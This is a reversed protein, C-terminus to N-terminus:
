FRDVNLLPEKIGDPDTSNDWASSGAALLAAKVTKPSAAPSGAKYLAAAGSVHPAAMSTGSMVETRGTHSTSLICAGPAILDVDRGYNSFRVLVDDPHSGGCQVSGAGLGGPKGDWDALASVTIVEDYAAPVQTAADTSSNGASAVYTVGAAVSRCIADHYPDPTSCGKGTPDTGAGGLSMNAVEIVSANATVWDVGCIIDSRYGFAGQFVRVSWLRVGPAVGVVGEGDDRAGVTGAVHTGHGHADTVGHSARTCNVGGVVNLDPHSAIGTDLIAVDADVAGSGNGSVTSSLEGDVRDIGTPTVQGDIRMPRDEVVHAVRSDKRIAALAAPTLQAAYGKLANEYVHEVAAGHARVHEQAVPAARTGEKLVVIYPANPNQPDVALAPTAIVSMITIAAAGILARNM